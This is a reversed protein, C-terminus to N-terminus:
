IGALSFFLGFVILAAVAGVMWYRLTRQRDRTTYAFGAIAVLVLVLVLIGVYHTGQTGNSWAPLGIAAFLSDGWCYGTKKWTMGFAIAFLLLAICGIRMCIKSRRSM